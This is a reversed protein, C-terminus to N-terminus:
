KRCCCCCCCIIIGIFLGVILVFGVCGILIFYNYWDWGSSNCDTGKKHYGDDCICVEMGDLCGGHGNCDGACENQCEKECAKVTIDGLDNIDKGIFRLMMLNSASPLSITTRWTANGSDHTCDDKGECLWLQSDKNGFFLRRIARVEIPGQILETKKVVFSFTKTNDGFDDRKVLIQKGVDLTVEEALVAVAAICVLAVLAKM